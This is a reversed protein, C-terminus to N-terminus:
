KGFLFYLVGFFLVELIAIVGLNVLKNEPKHM